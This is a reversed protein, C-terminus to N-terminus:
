ETGAVLGDTIELLENECIYALLHQCINGRIIEKAKKKDHHTLETQKAFPWNTKKYDFRYNRYSNELGVSFFSGLSKVM